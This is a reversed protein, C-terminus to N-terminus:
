RMVRYEGERSKPDTSLETTLQSKTNSRPAKTFDDVGTFTADGLLPVILDAQSVSPTLALQFAVERVASSLGSGARLSGVNWTIKGTRQDYALKEDKPTSNGVFRVYSPLTAEVKGGVVDNSSNVLSWIVTYWTEQGVKPPLPGVNTLPGTYHVVRSGLQTITNFKVQKRVVTEVRGAAGNTDAIRTGTFIFDLGIEPQRYFEQSGLLPLSAFSFNVEGTAGAELNALSPVTSKDWLLTRDSSRFFGSQSLVSREDLVKGVLRVQLQGDMIRSPLNNTWTISANVIDAGEAHIVDSEAGAVITALGVFPRKITLTQSVSNYPVVIKHETDNEGGVGTSVQFAKTEEDQGEIVGHITITRDGQAPIDGLRWVHKTGVIPAPEARTFTFGPPYTVSALLSALPETANSTTKITLTIEQGSNADSPATIALTVPASAIRFSFREEKAFIANSGQTRYELGIVLEKETNEKGYFIAKVGESMTQNPMVVGVSRRFRTLTKSVDEASRTGEPFTVLVDALELPTNNNNAILVEFSAVEGGKVTAPGNVVIEINDGSITNVGGFFLYSAVGAAGLFFLLAAVFFLRIGSISPKKRMPATNWDHDPEGLPSTLHSRKRLFIGSGPKNLLHDVKDLNDNAEPPMRESLIAFWWSLSM